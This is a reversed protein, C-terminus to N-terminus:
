WVALPEPSANQVLLLLVVALGAVVAVSVLIMTAAHRRIAASEGDGPLMAPLARSFQALKWRAFQKEFTRLSQNDHQM